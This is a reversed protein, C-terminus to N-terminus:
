DGLLQNLRQQEAARAANQQDSAGRAVAKRARIEAAQAAIEAVRKDIEAVRASSSPGDGALRWTTATKVLIGAVLGVVVAAGALALFSGERDAPGRLLFFAGFGAALSAAIALIAYEISM